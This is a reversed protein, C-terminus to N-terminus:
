FLSLARIFISAHGNRRPNNIQSRCSIVNLNIHDAGKHSRSRRAFFPLCRRMADTHDVVEPKEPDRSTWSKERLDDRERVSREIEGRRINVSDRSRTRSGTDSTDQIQAKCIDTATFLVGLIDQLGPTGINVLADATSYSSCIAFLFSTFNRSDLDVSSVFLQFCYREINRYDSKHEWDADTRFSAFSDPSPVRSDPSLKMIYIGHMSYCRSSM